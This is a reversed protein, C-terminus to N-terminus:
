FGAMAEEVSPYVQFRELMGVNQLVQSVPGSVRALRIGGGAKQARQSASLIARVGASSLYVVEKLDLVLKSSAEAIRGLEADLAAATVSDVRGAVSVISVEGTRRSKVSLDDM